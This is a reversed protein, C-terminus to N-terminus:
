DLWVRYQATVRGKEPDIFHLRQSPRSGAGVRDSAYRSDSEPSSTWFVQGRGNSLPDEGHFHYHGVYVDRFAWDHAGAVWDNCRRVVSARSAFGNRGVEDGHILLARYAGIEVHQIDTNTDSWTVRSWDAPIQRLIERAHEYAMRDYNDELPVAARKSGIRGHNGHEQVVTVREYVSLAARVVEVELRAIHAFQQFLTMDVEFPQQPFQFLGEGMDGGFLIVCNRVPHHRRQIETLAAARECFALVRARMVDTNYTTTVKSGQWDTLHWLATEDGAARILGTPSSVPTLTAAIEHVADFAGERVADALAARKRVLTGIRDNAQKLAIKADDLQALLEFERL